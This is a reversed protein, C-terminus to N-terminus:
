SQGILAHVFASFRDVSCLVDLFALGDKHAKFKNKASTNRASKLDSFGM